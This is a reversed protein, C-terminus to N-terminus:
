NSNLNDSIMECNSEGKEEKFYVSYCDKESDPIVKQLGIGCDGSKSCTHLSQSLMRELNDNGIGPLYRHVRLSIPNKVGYMRLFYVTSFIPEYDLPHYSELSIMRDPHEKSKDVAKKLRETFENTRLRHNHSAEKLHQFPNKLVLILLAATIGMRFRDTFSKRGGAERLLYMIYILNTVWFFPFVTMGPFDYRTDQPIEANYFVFQFYFNLLNYLQILAFLVLNRSFNRIPSSVYRVSLSFASIIFFVYLHIETMSVAKILMPLRSAAKTDRAYVDQGSRSLTLVVSYVILMTLLFAAATFFVNLFNFKRKPFEMLLMLVPPFIFVILNEKMGIGILSFIGLLVWQIKYEKESINERMLRYAAYGCVAYCLVGYTESPMHMIFFHSFYKESFVAATFFLAFAYGTFRSIIYFVLLLSVYIVSFKEIFWLLPNEAFFVQKLFHVIQATPHYRNASSPTCLADMGNYTGKCLTELFGHSGSRLYLQFEAVKHDDVIYWTASFNEKYASYFLGTLLIIMFFPYTRYRSIKEENLILILGFFIFLVERFTFGTNLQIKGHLVVAPGTLFLVTQILLKIRLASFLNM